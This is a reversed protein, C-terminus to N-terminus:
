KSHLTNSIQNHDSNRRPRENFFMANFLETNTEMKIFNCFFLFFFLLYCFIFCVVVLVTGSDMGNSTLM